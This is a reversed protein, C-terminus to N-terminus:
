IRRRDHRRDLEHRHAPPRGRGAPTPGAATILLDYPDQYFGAGPGRYAIHLHAGTSGGTNGVYALVDGAEVRRGNVGPVFSSAHGFGWYSGNDAFLSTWNGGGSPDWGQAARGAVPAVIPQGTCGAYALDMGGHNSPQGTIPDPRGGFYSTVRWGAIVGLAPALPGPRLPFLM